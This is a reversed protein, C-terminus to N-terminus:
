PRVGEVAPRAIWITAAGGAAPVTTRAVGDDARIGSAVLATAVRLGGPVNAQGPRTMWTWRTADEIRDRDREALLVRVRGRGSLVGVGRLSFPMGAGAGSFGIGDVVVGPDAAFRVRCTTRTVRDVLGIWTGGISVAAGPRVGDRAGRDLIGSARSRVTDASHTMLAELPTWARERNEATPGERDGSPVVVAALITDFRVAPEIVADRLPSGTRDRLRRATGIRLGAPVSSDARFATAIPLGGESFAGFADWERFIRLDLRGPERHSGAVAFELVRERSRAVSAHLTAAFRHSPSATGRCWARRTEVDTVLGVLADGFVVADGSRLGDVSGADIAYETEGRATTRSSLIEVARFSLADDARERRALIESAAYEVHRALWADARDDRADSTRSVSSTASRAFSISRNAVERVPAWSVVVIIIVALVVAEGFWGWRRIWKTGVGFGFM